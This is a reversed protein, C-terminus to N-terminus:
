TSTGEPYLQINITELKDERICLTNKIEWDPYYYSLTTFVAVPNNNVWTTCEEKNDFTPNYWLFGEHLEGQTQTLLVLFFWKM